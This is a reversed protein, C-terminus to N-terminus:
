YFNAKLAKPQPRPHKVLVAVDCFKRRQEECEECGSDLEQMSKVYEKFTSFSSFYILSPLRWFLSQNHVLFEQQAGLVSGPRVIRMFGIVDAGCFRYHKMLYIAILTGTRGLGAKCHVGVAGPASEVADLFANIIAATPTSGDPFFLDCHDIEADCFYDRSYTPECLRIVRSVGMRKLEAAAEAVSPASRFSKRNSPSSFALLRGPIIWHGDGNSFKELNEYGRLDFEDISLLGARLGHEFGRLCHRLTCRYTCPGNSADRFAQFPPKVNEFRANAEEASFGRRAILYCGAVFAANLRTEPKLGTYHYVTSNASVASSLLRDVGAIYRYIKALNLPGFDFYFATYTLETDTSFYFSNSLGRPPSKESMWYLKEPVLEVAGRRMKM